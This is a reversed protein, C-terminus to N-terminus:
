FRRAPGRFVNEQHWGVYPKAPRPYGGQPARLDAGSLPVFLGRASDNVDLTQSVQIRHDDTLGIAGRDFAWHHLKCLCLGNEIADPGDSTFWRVHAADLGFGPGGFTAKFGCFACAFEYARIVEVAFQASRKRDAEAALGAGGGAAPLGLRGCIDNHYSKPWYRDLLHAVAARRAGAEGKLLAFLGPDLAGVAGGERLTSASPRDSRLSEPLSYDWFGSSRLYHFPYEPHYGRTEKWGFDRLLERLDEEIDGFCVRNDSLAGAELRSLM